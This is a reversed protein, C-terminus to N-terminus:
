LVILLVIAAIVVAGIIVMATKVARHGYNLALGAGFRAPVIISKDNKNCYFIELKWYEPLQRNIFGNQKKDRKPM